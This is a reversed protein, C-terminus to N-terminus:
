LLSKNLSFMERVVIEIQCSMQHTMLTEVWVTTLQPFSAIGLAYKEGVFLKRSGVLTARM